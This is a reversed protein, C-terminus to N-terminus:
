PQDRGFERRLDDLSVWGAPDADAEAVRRQVEDLHWDPAPPPNADLLSDWVRGLLALREAVPWQEIPVDAARVM